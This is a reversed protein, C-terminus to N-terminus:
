GTIPMYVLDGISITGISPAKKDKESFLQVRDADVHLLFGTPLPIVPPDVPLYPTYWLGTGGSHPHVPADKLWLKVSVIKGSKRDLTISMGGVSEMVLNSGTVPLPDIDFYHRGFWREHLGTVPTSTTLTSDTPTTLVDEIFSLKMTDGFGGAGGGGGKGKGALVEPGVPDSGQGHCSLLFAASLLALSAMVLYPKM